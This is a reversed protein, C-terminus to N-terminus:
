GVQGIITPQLPVDWANQKARVCDRFKTGPAMIVQPPANPTGSWAGKPGVQVEAMKQAYCPCRCCVCQKSEFKCPFKWVRNCKCTLMVEEMQAIYGGGIPNFQGDMDALHGFVNAGKSAIPKEPDPLDFHLEFIAGLEGTQDETAVTVLDLAEKPSTVHVPAKSKGGVGFGCVSFLAAGVYGVKLLKWGKVQVGDRGPTGTCLVTDEMVVMTEQNLKGMMAKVEAVSKANVIGSFDPSRGSPLPDVHGFMPVAAGM